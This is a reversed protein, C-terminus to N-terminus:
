RRPARDEIDILRQEIAPEDVEGRSFGALAKVLQVMSEMNSGSDFNDIRGGAHGYREIFMSFRYTTGDIVLPPSHPHKVKLLEMSWISGTREATQASIRRQQTNVIVGDLEPCIVDPLRSSDGDQDDGLAGESSTLRTVNVDAALLFAFYDTGIKRIGVMYEPEFSPVVFARLVVDESFGSSFLKRVALTYNDIDLLFPVDPVLHDDAGAPATATWISTMTVLMAFVIAHIVRTHNM